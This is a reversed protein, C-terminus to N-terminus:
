VVERSYVLAFVFGSHQVPFLASTTTTLHCSPGDGITINVNSGSSVPTGGAPNQATVKGCNKPSRDSTDYTPVPVLNATGIQNEAVQQQENVVPPVNVPPGTSIVLNVPYNAPEM